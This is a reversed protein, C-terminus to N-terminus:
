KKSKSLAMFSLGVFAFVIVAIGWGNHVIIIPEDIKYIFQRLPM